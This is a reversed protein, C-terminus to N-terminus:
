ILASKAAAVYASLANYLQYRPTFTPHVSDSLVGTQAGSVTDTSQVTMAYGSESTVLAWTPALIVNLDTALSQLKRIVTTYESLWLENRDANYSTAPIYIVIPVAPVAARIQGIMLFMNDYFDTALTPNDLDRIDNTGLGITVVQPTALSFRSLYFAFDFVYGNRVISPSDDGTAIRLYPNQPWKTAKTAALYSAEDGVAVISVRNTVKYTFDGTEWGERCEGLEGGEGNAGDRSDGRMTGVYTSTYGHALLYEKLLAGGGRNGISDGIMHVVVSETADPVAACTMLLRSRVSQNRKDRLTLYASTGVDSFRPIVVNGDAVFSFPKAQSSLSAIVNQQTRQLVRDDLLCATDITVTDDAWAALTQSFLPKSTDTLTVVTNQAAVIQSLLAFLDFNFGAKDQLILSNADEIVSMGGFDIRSLYIALANSLFSAITFGAGDKIDFQGGDNTVKLGGFDVTQGFLQLGNQDLAAFVFGGSDKIYIDNGANTISLGSFNSFASSFSALLGGAGNKVDLQESILPLFLRLGQAVLDAIVFGYKDTLADDGVKILATRDAVEVAVAALAVALDDRDSKTLITGDWQWIWNNAPDPDNTVRAFSNAPLTAKAADLAAYTLFAKTAGNALANILNLLVTDQAIRDAEVVDIRGQLMETSNPLDFALETLRADLNNISLEIEALQELATGEALNKASELWARLEALVTVPNSNDSIPLALVGSLSTKIDQLARWIQDLDADLVSPLFQNTSNTYSIERELPLARQISVVSGAPPIAVFVVKGAAYSWLTTSQLVDGIYVNIESARFVEFGTSFNATLGTSTYRTITSQESVTM